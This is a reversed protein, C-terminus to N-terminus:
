KIKQQKDRRNNNKEIIKQVGKLSNRGSWERVKM